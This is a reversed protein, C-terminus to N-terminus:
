RNGTPKLISLVPRFSPSSHTGSASSRPPCSKISQLTSPYMLIGAGQESLVCEGLATKKRASCRALVVSSKGSHVLGTRAWSEGLHPAGGSSEDNQTKPMWFELDGSQSITLVMDQLAAHDEWEVTSTHWGMPDVPLVLAPLASSAGGLAYRSMLRATPIYGEPGIVSTGAGEVLWVYVVADMCAAIIYTQQTRTDRATVGDDVDSTAIIVQINDGAHFSPLDIGSTVTGDSNVHHLTIRDDTARVLGRGGAFIASAAVNGEKESGMSWQGRGTLRGMAKTGEARTGITWVTNQGNTGVALLGRGNPTRALYSIPQDLNLSTASTVGSSLTQHVSLEFASGLKTNSNSRLGLDLISLSTRSNVLVKLQGDKGAPLVNWRVDPTVRKLQGYRAAKRIRLLTPPKREM